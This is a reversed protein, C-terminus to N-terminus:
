YVVTNLSVKSSDSASNSLAGTEEKMIYHHIIRSKKKLESLLQAVHEELFETKESQRAASKQLRIIRDVLLQQTVMSDNLPPLPEQFIVLLHIHNHWVTLLDEKNETRWYM